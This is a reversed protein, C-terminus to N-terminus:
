PPTVADDKTRSDFHYPPQKCRHSAEDLTFCFYREGRSYMTCGWLCLGVLALLVAHRM